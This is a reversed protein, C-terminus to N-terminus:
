FPKYREYELLCYDKYLVEFTVCGSVYGCLSTYKMVSIKNESRYDLITSMGRSFYTTNM